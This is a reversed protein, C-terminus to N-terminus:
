VMIESVTQVEVNGKIMQWVPCISEEALKICRELEDYSTNNSKLIFRLKINSFKIPQEIGREGKAELKFDLIEKKMKRLLFVVATSVCGSLSMLLLELGNYGKGTGIPEKYDFVIKMDNYAESYGEFKVKDDLLAVIVKEVNEEM